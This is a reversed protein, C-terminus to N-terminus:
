LSLSTLALDSSPGRDLTVSTRIFHSTPAWLLVHPCSLPRSDGLWGPAPGERVAELFWGQWCRSPPSGAELAILLYVETTQPWRVEGEENHCGGHAPVADPPTSDSALSPHPHKIQSTTRRPLLLSPQSSNLGISHAVPAQNWTSKRLLM